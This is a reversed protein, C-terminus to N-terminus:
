RGVDSLTAVAIIRRREAGSLVGDEVLGATTSRVHRLFARHSAHDGHEDVLDNVTCGDGTDVNAVTSDHGGIVVTPRVDSGPCADRTTAVVTFTVSGVASANGAV